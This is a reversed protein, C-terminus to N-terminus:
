AWIAVGNEAPSYIWFKGERRRTALRLVHLDALRNNWGNISIKEQGQAALHAATAEGAASLLARTRDLAADLAGLVTANDKEGLQLLPCNRGRFFEDVEEKVEGTCKSVIPFLRLPRISWRETSAAHEKRAEAQGCQFAWFVTAKLFSANIAAVEELDLILACDEQEALNLDSQVQAMLDQGLTAGLLYPRRPNIFISKLDVPIYESM